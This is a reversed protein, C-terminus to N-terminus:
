HMFVCCFVFVFVLFVCCVKVNRGDLLIKAGQESASQILSHVRAKSEASILPGLDADAATGPGVKLKKAKEVLEPIRNLVRLCFHSVFWCFSCFVCFLIRDHWKRADGVFVAASLAM